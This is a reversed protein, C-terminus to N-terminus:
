GKMPNRLASEVHMRQLLSGAARYAPVNHQIAFLLISASFFMSLVTLFLLCVVAVSAPSHQLTHPAIFFM